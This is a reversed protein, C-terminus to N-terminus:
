RRDYRQQLSLPKNKRGVISIDRVLVDGGEELRWTETLISGQEDLTQVIFAGGEWGAVRQAEIPGISVIRNEGFTFEEVVSRDFSIFLGHATQTVKLAQGTELFVHVSSGSSRRSSRRRNKQLVSDRTPIGIPRDGGSPEPRLLWRGGLDVGAPVVTDKSILVPKSTCASLLLSALCVILATILLDRKDM